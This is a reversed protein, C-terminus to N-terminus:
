KRNAPVEYGAGRLVDLMTAVRVDWTCTEALRVRNRDVLGQYEDIRGLVSKLQGVPDGLDAEIVPDYGFLDV